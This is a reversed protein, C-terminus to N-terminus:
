QGRGIQHPDVIALGIYTGNTSTNHEKIGNHHFDKGKDSSLYGGASPDNPALWGTVPNSPNRARDYLSWWDKILSNKHLNWVSAGQLPVFVNNSTGNAIMEYTKIYPSDKAFVYAIFDVNNSNTSSGKGLTFITESPETNNWPGSSTFAYYEDFSIFKTAGLEHHYIYWGGAIRSKVISMGVDQSLGHPVEHGASGSGKYTVTSFGFEPNASVTYAKGHNTTGTVRSSSSGAKLAYYVFNENAANTNNETSLDFGTGTLNTISNSKYKEETTGSFDLTEGNGRLSDVIKWSRAATLNKVIILSDDDGWDVGDGFLITQSTGNGKYTGQVFHDSLKSTPLSLNATTLAKFGTDPTDVFENESFNATVVGRNSGSGDRIAPFLQATTTYTESVIETGNQDITFTKASTDVEFTFRDGVSWSGYTSGLSGNVYNAINGASQLSVGNRTGNDSPDMFLLQINSTSADVEFEFHVQDIDNIALTAPTIGQGSTTSDVTRNGNSFVASTNGIDLPNFTAASDTPSNGVPTVGGHVSWHNANGSVDKGLDTSDAFDLHFGNSGFDASYTIPDWAGTSSTFEGFDTVTGFGNQFEAVYGNLYKIGSTYRGINHTETNNWQSQFNLSYADETSFSTVREGNVYLKQRESATTQTTDVEFVVHYWANDRYLANTQLYMETTGGSLEKIRIVGTDQFRVFLYSTLGANNANAIVQQTGQGKRVWASITFVKRSGATSPVWSLYGTSGDFLAAGAVSYTSSGPLTVGGGPVTTGGDGEDSGTDTGSGSTTPTGGGSALIFAADSVGLPMFDARDDGVASGLALDACTSDFTRNAGSSVVAFSIGGPDPTTQGDIRGTSSNTTGHDYVCYGLSRNWGDKKIGLITEPLAGGGTPAHNAEIFAPAELTNDSDSDSLSQALVQIVSQVHTETEFQQSTKFNNYLQRVVDSSINSVNGTIILSALFLLILKKM